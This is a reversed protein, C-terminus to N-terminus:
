IFSSFLDIECGHSSPYLCRNSVMQKVDLPCRECPNSYKLHDHEAWMAAFSRVLARLGRGGDPPWNFRRGRRVADHSSRRLRGRRGRPWAAARECSLQCRRCIGPWASSSLAAPWILTSAFEAAVLRREALPWCPRDLLLLPDILSTKKRKMKGVKTERM